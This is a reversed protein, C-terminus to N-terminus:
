ESHILILMVGLFFILRYRYFIPWIPLFLFPRNVKAGKMASIPACKCTCHIACMNFRFVVTFEQLACVTM